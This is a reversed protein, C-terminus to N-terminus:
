PEFKIRYAGNTPKPELDDDETAPISIHKKLTPEFRSEIQSITPRVFQSDKSGELKTIEVWYGKAETLRKFLEKRDPSDFDIFGYTGFVFKNGHWQFDNQWLPKATSSSVSPTTGEKKSIEQDLGRLYEQIAEPNLEFTLVTNQMAPEGAEKDFILGFKEFRELIEDVKDLAEYVGMGTLYKSFLESYRFRVNQNISYPLKEIIKQAIDRERKLANINHFVFKKSEDKIAQFELIELINLLNDKDVYVFLNGTEEDPEAQVIEWEQLKWIIDKEDYSNDSDLYSVSEFLVPQGTQTTEFKENLKKLVILVRKKNSDSLALVAKKHDKQISM